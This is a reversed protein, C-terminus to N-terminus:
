SRHTEPVHLRPLRDEIFRRRPELWPPLKLAAGLSERPEDATFGPPDTAIEFLVGGPERFYISKFYQRDMVTTVNTGAAALRGRWAKQDDDSACRFAIHHVSGAAVRGPRLGPACVLDVRTGPADSRTTYRFRDRQEGSPELGMVDTLLAATREYGELTLTVGHFGRIAYAAPIPGDRWWWRNADGAVEVLEIALDDPDRLALLREGFREEIPGFEITGGALREMWWELSGHPVAFATATAQGAGRMGPPAGPWPFFTLITGPTGVDDGYYLHYTTPDDFNVTRKVLRLGLLSAYFDANAQPDSAIATVHHLGPIANM